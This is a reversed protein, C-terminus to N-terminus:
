KQVYLSSKLFSINYNKEVDYKYEEVLGLALAKLEESGKKMEELEEKKIVRQGKEDPEIGEAKENILKRLLEQYAGNKEQFTNYEEATSFEKVEAIVKGTGSELEELKAQEPVLIYNNNLSYAYNQRLFALNQKLAKETKNIEGAILERSQVANAPITGFENRLKAATQRQSNVINLAQSLRVNAEKGEIVAVLDFSADGREISAKVKKIEALDASTLSEAKEESAEPTKVEITEAAPADTSASEAGGENCAGLALFTILCFTGQQLRYLSSLITKM